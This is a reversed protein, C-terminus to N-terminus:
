LNQKNKLENSYKRTQQTYQLVANKFRYVDNQLILVRSINLTYKIYLLMILVVMVKTDIMMAGINSANM